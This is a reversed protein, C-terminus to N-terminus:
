LRAVTVAKPMVVDIGIKRIVNLVDVVLCTKM